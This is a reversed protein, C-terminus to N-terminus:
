GFIRSGITQMNEWHSFTRITILYVCIEKTFQPSLEDSKKENMNHFLLDILPLPLLMELRPTIKFISLNLQSDVINCLFGM